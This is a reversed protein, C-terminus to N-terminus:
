AFCTFSLEWGAHIYGQDQTAQDIVFLDWRGNPPTGHFVDLGVAGSPLPAPSFFVPFPPRVTPQFLGSITPVPIPSSARQDLLFTLHSSAGGVNALIVANQGTPGVLLLAIDALATHTIDKLTVTIEAITGPLDAVIISSPYPHAMGFEPIQMPTSNRFSYAAPKRMWQVIEALKSPRSIDREITHRLTRCNDLNEDNWGLEEWAMSFLLADIASPNNPTLISTINPINYSNM